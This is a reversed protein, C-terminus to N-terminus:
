GSRQGSRGDGPPWVRVIEASRKAAPDIVVAEGVGLRKFEDPGVLFERERTRTGEGKGIPAGTGSVRQTTSWGPVTGAMRALREASNPDGIRHAITFEVNSLVQETLTDSSDGPRAGRLDALSQTGLHLSLNASRARAFLRSVQEAALAAFEDIVVLGGVGSGQLEATLGVLDILLAAAVLKAANPYRDADLNFYLVDGCRLSHALDIQEGEGLAPDLWPGLESDALVALRDRGGGLDAKGRGSLGDVYSSVRKATEGGVKSALADLREPEMYRVLGSITPPWIEAAQMTTLVHGLLRQTALEYHPESWQHAALAKDAIETPGGRALPNYINPGTPTWEIFRSGARHAAQCAVSRLYRDGKPDIVIAAFHSLVYAPIFGALTVTKGSGTAGTILAHVGRFLGFPVRCVGGRRASGIALREGKLRQRRARRGQLRSLAWRLPGRADGIARAEEGGRQLIEAHGRAGHWIATAAAIALVLGIHWEIFWVVYALPLGWFAWTWRLRRRQLARLALFGILLGAIVPYALAWLHAGVDLAVNGQGRTV